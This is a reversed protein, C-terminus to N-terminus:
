RGDIPEGLCHREKGHDAGAHERQQMQSSRPDEVPENGIRICHGEPWLKTAWQDPVYKRNAGVKGNGQYEPVDADHRVQGGDAVLRSRFPLPYEVTDASETPAAGGFM